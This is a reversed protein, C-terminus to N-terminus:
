DARAAEIRQQDPTTERSSLDMVRDNDHGVGPVAQGCERPVDHWHQLELAM